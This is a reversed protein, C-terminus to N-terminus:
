RVCIATPPKIIKPATAVKSQEGTKVAPLSNGPELAADFNNSHRGLLVTYYAM